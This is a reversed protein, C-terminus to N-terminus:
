SAIWLVRQTLKNIGIRKIDLKTQNGDTTIAWNEGNLIVKWQVEHLNIGQSEEAVTIKCAFYWFRAYNIKSTNDEKIPDGNKM